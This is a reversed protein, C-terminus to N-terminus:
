RKQLEQFLGDYRIIEKFHNHFYDRNCMKFGM